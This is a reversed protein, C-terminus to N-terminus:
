ADANSPYFRKRFGAGISHPMSAGLAYGRDFRAVGFAVGDIDHSAIQLSGNLDFRM